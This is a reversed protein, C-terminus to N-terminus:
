VVAAGYIRRWAPPMSRVAIKLVSKGDRSVGMMRWLGDNNITAVKREKYNESARAVYIGSDGNDHEASAYVIFSGDRSWIPADTSAM